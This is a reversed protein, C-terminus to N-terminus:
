CTAVRYHPECSGSNNGFAERSANAPMNAIIVRVIFNLINIPIIIGVTAQLPQPHQSLVTSALSCLSAQHEAVKCAQGFGHVGIYLMGNKGMAWKIQQHKNRIELFFACTAFSQIRPYDFKANRSASIERCTRVMHMLKERACNSPCSITSARLAKRVDLEVCTLLDLDPKTAEKRIERSRDTFLAAANSLLSNARKMQKNNVAVSDFIGHGVLPDQVLV